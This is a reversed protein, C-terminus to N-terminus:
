WQGKGRKQYDKDDQQDYFSELEDSLDMLKEERKIKEDRLEEYLDVDYDYYDYHRDGSKDIRFECYACNYL